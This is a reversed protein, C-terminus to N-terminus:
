NLNRLPFNQFALCNAHALLIAQVENIRPM